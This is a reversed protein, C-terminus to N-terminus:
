FLNWVNQGEASEDKGNQEECHQEIQRRNRGVPGQEYVDGESDEYDCAQSVDNVAGNCSFEVDGAFESTHEVWEGVLDEDAAGEDAEGYDALRFEEEVPRGFGKVYDTPGDGDDEDGSLAVYCDQAVYHLGFAHVEAGDSGSFDFHEDLGEGDSGDENFRSVDAGVGPSVPESHNCEDNHQRDCDDGAEGGGSADSWGSSEADL